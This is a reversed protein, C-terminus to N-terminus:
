NDLEIEHYLGDLAAEPYDGGGSAKVEASGGDIWGHISNLDETFINNKPFHCIWDKEPDCHDRYFCVRLKKTDLQKFDILKKVTEKAKIIETAMSGTADIM